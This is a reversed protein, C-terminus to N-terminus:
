VLNNNQFTIIISFLDNSCSDITLISSIRDLKWYLFIINDYFQYIKIIWETSAHM